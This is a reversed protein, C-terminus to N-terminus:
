RGGGFVSRKKIDKGGLVKAVTGILPFRRGNSRTCKANFDDEDMNWFFAGRYGNNKVYNAKETISQEDDYSFWQDGYQIFPTKTAADWTRKAGKALRECIEFYAAIGAEQIADTARSPVTSPTGM